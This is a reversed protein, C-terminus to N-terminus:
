VTKVVEEFPGFNRYRYKLQALTLSVKITDYEIRTNGRDHLDARWAKRCIPLDFTIVDGEKKDAFLSKPLYSSRPEWGKLEDYSDILHDCWNSNSNGPTCFWIQVFSESEFDSSILKDKFRLSTHVAEVDSWPGFNSRPKERSVSISPNPIIFIDGVIISKTKM